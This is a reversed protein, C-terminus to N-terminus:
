SGTLSEFSQEGPRWWISALPGQHVLQSLTTFRFIKDTQRATATSLTKLRGLADTVVLVRFFKRGFIQHLRGSRALEIYVRVKREFKSIPETGRDYEVFVCYTLKDVDYEAYGDPIVGLSFTELEKALL